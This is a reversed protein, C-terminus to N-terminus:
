STIRSVRPARRVCRWALLLSGGTLMWSVAGPEEQAASSQLGALLLEGGLWAAISVCAALGLAPLLLAIWPAVAHRKEAAALAAVRRAFGAPPQWQPLRALMADILHDEHDRRSM